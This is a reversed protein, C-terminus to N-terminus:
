CDSGIAKKGQDISSIQKSIFVDFISNAPHM